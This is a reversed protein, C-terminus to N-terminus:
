TEPWHRFGRRGYLLPTQGHRHAVDYVEGLVILHSGVREAGRIRCDATAHSHQPLHPGASGPAWRVREFREPEGSAFLSAVSHGGAHVFNVAFKGAALVAALTPSEARLCVLLVPPEVSVSCLSSCTMGRPAGDQGDATVIAVGSPFEAMLSRFGEASVTEASSAGAQEGVHM